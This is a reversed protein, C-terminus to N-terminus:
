RSRGFSRQMTKARLERLADRPDHGTFLLQDVETTTMGKNRFFHGLEAAILQQESVATDIEPSRANDKSAETSGRRSWLNRVFLEEKAKALASIYKFYKLLTEMHEALEEESLKVHPTRSRVWQGVSTKFDEDKKTSEAEDFQTFQAKLSDLRAKRRLYDLQAPTQASSDNDATM